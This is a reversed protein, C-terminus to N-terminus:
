RTPKQKRRISALASIVSLAYATLKLCTFMSAAHVEDPPIAPYALLLKTISINETYDLAAALLPLWSLFRLPSRRIALYLFSGFLAPLILDVTWLLHVYADRGATGMTTFLISVDTPNYGWQM